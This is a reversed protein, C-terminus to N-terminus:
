NEEEAQRETEDAASCQSLVMNSARLGNAAYKEREEEEQATSGSSASREAAQEDLEQHDEGAEVDHRHRCAKRLQLYAILVPAFALIITFAGFIINQVSALDNSAGQGQSQNSAVGTSNRYDM